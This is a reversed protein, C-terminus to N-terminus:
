VFLEGSVSRKTQNWTSCFANLPPESLEKTKGGSERNPARFKSPPSMISRNVCTVAPFFVGSLDRTSPVTIFTSRTDGSAGPWTAVNSTAQCKM